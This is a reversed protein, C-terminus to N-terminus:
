FYTQRANQDHSVSVYVILSFTDSFVGIGGGSQSANISAIALSIMASRDGARIICALAFSYSRSECQMGAVVIRLTHEEGVEYLEFM